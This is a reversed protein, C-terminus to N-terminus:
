AAHHSEEIRTVTGLRQSRGQDTHGATLPRMRTTCLRPRWSTWSTTSAWSMSDPVVEQMLLLLVSDGSRLSAATLISSPCRSGDDGSRSASPCTKGATPRCSGQGCQGRLGRRPLAHSSGHGCVAKPPRYGPSRRGAELGFRHEPSRHHLDPEPPRHVEVFTSVVWPRTSSTLSSGRPLRTIM